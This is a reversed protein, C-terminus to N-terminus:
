FYLLIMSLIIPSFLLSFSAWVTVVNSRYCTFVHIAQFRIFKANEFDDDPALLSSTEM